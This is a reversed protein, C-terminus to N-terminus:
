NSILQIQNWSMLWNKEIVKVEECTLSAFMQDIQGSHVLFWQTNNLGSKEGHIQVIM